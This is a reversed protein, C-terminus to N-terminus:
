NLMIISKQVHSFGAPFSMANVFLFLILMDSPYKNNSQKVNESKVAFTAVIIHLPLVYHLLLVLLYFDSLWHVSETHCM